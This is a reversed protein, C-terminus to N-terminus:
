SVEDHLHKKIRILGMEKLKQLLMYFRGEQVPVLNKLLQIDYQGNIRSALFGLMPDLHWNQLEDLPLTLEPIAQPPFEKELSTKTVQSVLTRVREVRQAVESYRKEIYEMLNQAEAYRNQRLYQLCTDILTLLPIFEPEFETKGATEGVIQAFGNTVFHSSIRLADIPLVLMKHTLERISHKGDLSQYFVREFTTASNPLALSNERQLITRLLSPLIDQLRHIESLLASGSFLSIPIRYAVPSEQKLTEWTFQIDPFLMCSLLADHIWEAVLASIHEQTLINGRQIADIFSDFALSSSKLQYVKEVDKESLRYRSVLKEMFIRESTLGPSFSVLGNQGYFEFEFGEVRFLLHQPGPFQFVKQWLHHCKRGEISGEVREM